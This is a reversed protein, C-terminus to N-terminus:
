KISIYIEIRQAEGQVVPKEYCEFDTTYARELPTSWITQWLPYVVQAPDGVISFKAYKGAICKRHELGQEAAISEFGAMFVYPKTEDGQYETYLGYVKGVGQSQQKHWQPSEFLKKWTEPIDKLGQMNENTTEISFGVIEIEKIDVIEYM